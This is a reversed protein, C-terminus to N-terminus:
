RLRSRLERAIILFMAGSQERLALELWKARRGGPHRYTLDEHQRRAYPTDYSVVGRRADNTAAGSAMMIGERFPISRNAEELLHHSAVYLAREAAKATKNQVQDGFWRVRAVM